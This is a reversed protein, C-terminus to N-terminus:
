NTQSKSTMKRSSKSQPEIKNETKKNMVILQVENKAMSYITKTSEVNIDEDCCYGFCCCKCYLCCSNVKEAKHKERYHREYSSCQLVITKIVPFCGNTCSGCLCMYYADNFTFTLCLCLINVFTDISYLLSVYERFVMFFGLIIETSLVVCLLLILFKSILLIVANHDRTKQHFQEQAVDAGSQSQVSPSRSDVKEISMDVVEVGNKSSNKSSKPFSFRSKARKQRNEGHVIVIFLKSLIWLITLTTLITDNLTGWAFIYKLYSSGRATTDSKDFSVCYSGIHTSDTAFEWDMLVFYVFPASLTISLFLFVLYIVFGIKKKQGTTSLYSEKFSDSTRKAFYFYLLLRGLVYSIMRWTALIPCIIFGSDHSIPTLFMIITQITTIIVYSYSLTISSALICKTSKKLDVRSTSSSPAKCFVHSLVQYIFFSLILTLCPIPLHAFKFHPSVYSAAM